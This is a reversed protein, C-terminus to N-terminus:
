EQVKPHGIRLPDHEPDGMMPPPGFREFFGRGPFVPLIESAKFKHDSLIEGLFRAPRGVILEFNPAKKIGQADVEWKVRDRDILIYNNDQQSLIMGTLRGQNPHSWFGIHPNILRDYFPARRGFENDIRAGLGVLDLIGGLLISAGVIVALMTVPSYRYGKKTHKIDFYVLVVFALLCIIWFFPIILLWSELLGSHLRQHIDWDNYRMMYIILSMAMAGFLLALVGVGWIVYDKLLFQWRPKPQLHEDKIKHLLEEGFNKDLTM